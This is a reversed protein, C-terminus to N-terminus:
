QEREVLRLLPEAIARAEEKRLKLSGNWGVHPNIFYVAIGPGKVGTVKRRERRIVGMRELTGMLHSVHDSSCGIKAAFEDRTLMVEGTDQRLNLLVLDFAHRVQNPRASPPLARIADWVIETQKRSIMTFGGSWLGEQTDPHTVRHLAHLVEERALRPLDEEPYLLLQREIQAATARKVCESRAQLRVVRVM